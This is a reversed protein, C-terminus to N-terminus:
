GLGGQLGWGGRKEQAREHKYKATWSHWAHMLPLLVRINGLSFMITKSGRCADKHVRRVLSLASFCDLANM